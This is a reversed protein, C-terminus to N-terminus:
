SCYLSYAVPHGFSCCSCLHGSLRGTLQTGEQLIGGCTTTFGLISTSPVPQNLKVEKPRCRLIMHSSTSFDEPNESSRLPGTDENTLAHLKDAWKLRELLGVGGAGEDLSLLINWLSSEKNIQVPKASEDAAAWESEMRERISRDIDELVSNFYVNHSSSIHNRFSEDCFAEILAELSNSKWDSPSLWWSLYIQKRSSVAVNLCQLLPRGLCAVVCETEMSAADCMRIVVAVDDLRVNEPMEAADAESSAVSICFLFQRGELRVAKRFVVTSVGGKGEWSKVLEAAVPIESPDIGTLKCAATQNKYSLCTDVLHWWLAQLTVRARQIRDPAASFHQERMETVLQLKQDHAVQLLRKATEQLREMRDAAVDMKVTIVRDPDYAELRWMEGCQWVSAVFFGEGSRKDNEMVEVRAGRKSVRVVSRWRLEESTAHAKDHLQTGTNRAAAQEPSSLATTNLLAGQLAREESVSQVQPNEKQHALPDRRNTIGNCVPVEEELTERGARQRKGVVNWIQDFDYSFEKLRNRRQSTKIALTNEHMLVKGFDVKVPHETVMVTSSVLQLEEAEKLQAQSIQFAEERTHEDRYKMRLDVSSWNTPGQLENSPSLPPLSKEIGVPKSPDLWASVSLRREVEHAPRPLVTGPAFHGAIRKIKVKLREAKRDPTDQLERIQVLRPAVGKTASAGGKLPLLGLM